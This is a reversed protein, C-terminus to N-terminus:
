WGSRPSALAAALAGRLGLGIQLRQAISALLQV